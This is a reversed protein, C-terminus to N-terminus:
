RQWESRLWAIALDSITPPVEHGGDFELYRVTYGAGRLWSVISRSTGDIPLVVDAKGHSIFIRPTGRPTSKAYFGPSYAIVRDFLDGNALGLSLAYAAGDSFGAIAIRKPDVAYTAFVAGLARDIRGADDRFGRGLAIDWTSGYSDPAVLIFRAAEGREAYSGFWMGAHGTAGHLLLVLPLPEAPTYSTPVYILGRRKGDVLLPNLGTAAQGAPSGPRSLIHEPESSAGSPVRHGCGALCLALASACLSKFRRPDIEMARMRNTPAAGTMRHGAGRLFRVQGNRREVDKATTRRHEFAERTYPVGPIM